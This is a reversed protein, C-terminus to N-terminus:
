PRRNGMRQSNEEFAQGLVGYQGERIASACCRGCMPVLVAGAYLTLALPRSCENCKVPYSTGDITVVEVKM